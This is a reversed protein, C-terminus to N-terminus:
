GVSIERVTNADLEEKTWRKQMLNLNVPEYEIKFDEAFYSLIAEKFVAAKTGPGRDSLYSMVEEWTSAWKIQAANGYRVAHRYERYPSLIILQRVGKALPELHRNAPSLPARNDDLGWPFGLYHNVLGTKCCNVMVVDGGPNVMDGGINVAFTAENAKANANVVCVDVKDFKPTSYTRYAKKVGAYFEKIPHGAFCDIIECSSNMLVDVKFDLGALMATEENDERVGTYQMNGHCEHYPRTKNLFVRSLEIKHNHVCTSFGAIGPLIMKSGGGFGAFSHPTISGLAIKVDSRMFTANIRPRFGRSTEGVEIMEGFPNHNYVPYQECIDAGLKKVFDDLELAGHCGLACIFIIREKSIGAKLLKRLVIHAMEKTPTGRSMDDFLICASEKGAAIEEITPGYVPNSIKDELQEKTLVTLKDGEMEAYHTEWSDPIDIKVPQDGHWRNQPLMYEM